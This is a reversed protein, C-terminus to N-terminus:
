VFFRLRNVVRLTFVSGNRNEEGAPSGPADNLPIPGTSNAKQKGPYFIKFPRGRRNKNTKSGRCIFFCVVETSAKASAKNSAPEIGAAEVL